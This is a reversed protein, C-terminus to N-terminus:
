RKQEAIVELGLAVGDVDHMTAVLSFNGDRLARRVEDYEIPHQRAEGPKLKAAPQAGPLVGAGNGDDQQRRPALLAVADAPEGGAGVIIHDLREGKGLEHCPHAGDQSAGTWLANSRHEAAAVDLEVPFRISHRPVAPLHMEPGGLKAQEFKEHLTWTPHEAPRLQKVAHPAAVHIDILAGDIHM